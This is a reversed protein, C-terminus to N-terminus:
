RLSPWSSEGMVPVIPGCRVTGLFGSEAKFEEPSLITPNVPRHVAAEVRTCADYVADVDTIGVIMVDIDHPAPGDVGRLRAAFSGYLFASEIGDVRGFEEAMLVVPGSVVALIERLPATLPSDPNGRILRTRGVHRETLIGADILRAVERHATAYALDAREALDTISLEDDALLLASLLRAQGDSRFVPALLPAKTRMYHIIDDM